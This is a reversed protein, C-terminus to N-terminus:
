NVYEVKGGLSAFDRFFTPYSKNVAEANDIIVPNECVVSAISAMMAIRHDGFANIRGGTLRKKGTIILGNETQAINSGLDSLTKAVTFLRDSEKFQLRGANKILTRGQAVSAALALVPVLDPINKADIEIGRLQSGKIKIHHDNQSIVAGFAKLIDAIARDGQASDTDLGYCEVGAGGLAGACLWFAANSWDGEVEANGPSIYSAGGNISLTNNTFEAEIEIGFLKMASLTMSIYDASEVSGTLNIVSDERVLPLALLLGSIYQSSIDAPLTCRGGRMQGGCKVIYGDDFTFSCGYETLANYLAEMPRGPLRGHGIFISDANLACAVPLLFRLTSGSEGCDMISKKIINNYNVPIVTYGDSTSIIQAGLASLCNITANIDESSESCKINTKNDALAALILLRHAFSKSAVASVKGSLESPKILVKM